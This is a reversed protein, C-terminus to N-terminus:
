LENVHTYSPPDSAPFSAESAHQVREGQKAKGQQSGDDVRGAPQGQNTPIEGAEVMNKLRRLELEIEREPRKGWLKAIWAGVPGAPQDYQLEVTVTTGRGATAHELRVSGTHKVPAGPLSRWAILENPVENIVEVCQVHKMFRPLNELNRWFGYVAERSAHITISRDVRIGEGATNVGCARYLDCYGTVGRRILAAGALTLGAGAAAQHKALAQRLGFFSLATGAIVSAIREMQNVNELEM